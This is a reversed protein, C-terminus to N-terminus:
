ADADAPVRNLEGAQVLIVLVAAATNWQPIAAVVLMGQRTDSFPAVAPHGVGIRRVLRGQVDEALQAAQRFLGTTIGGSDANLDPGGASLAAFGVPASFDREPPLGAHAM